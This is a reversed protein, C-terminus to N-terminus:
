LLLVAIWKLSFPFSFPFFFVTLHFSIPRISNFIAPIGNSNLYDSHSLTAKPSFFDNEISSSLSNRGDRQRCKSSFSAVFFFNFYFWTKLSFYELLPLKDRQRERERINWTNDSGDSVGFVDLTENERKDWRSCYIYTCCESVCCRVCGCVCVCVSM